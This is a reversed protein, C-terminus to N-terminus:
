APSGTSPEVEGVPPERAKHKAVEAECFASLGHLKANGPWTARLVPLRDLFAGTEELACNPEHSVCTMMLEVSAEALADAGSVGDCSAIADDICRSALSIIGSSRDKHCLVDECRFTLVKLLAIGDRRAAIPIDRRDFAKIVVEVTGRRAAERKHRSNNFVAEKIHRFHLAVDCDDRALAQL